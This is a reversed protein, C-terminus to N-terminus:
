HFRFRLSIGNLAETISSSFCDGCSIQYAVCESDFGYWRDFVILYEIDVDIKIRLQWVRQKFWRDDVLHKAPRNIREDPRARSVGQNYARLREKYEAPVPGRYGERLDRLSDKQAASQQM